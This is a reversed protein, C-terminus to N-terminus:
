LKRLRFYRTTGSLKVTVTFSGGEIVKDQLLPLWAGAALDESYELVFLNAAVPWSLTLRNGTRLAFIPPMDMAQLESRSTEGVIMPSSATAFASAQWVVVGAATPTVEFTGTVSAGPQIDGM